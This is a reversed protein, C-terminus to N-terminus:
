GPALAETLASELLVVAEDVHDRSIMLPPIFRV